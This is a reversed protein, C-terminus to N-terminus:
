FKRITARMTRALFFHTVLRAFTMRFAPNDRRVSRKSWGDAHVVSAEWDCWREAAKVALGLDDGTLAAGYARIRDLGTNAQPVFACFM